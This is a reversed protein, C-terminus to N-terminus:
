FLAKISMICLNRLLVLMKLQNIVHIENKPNWAIIGDNQIAWLRMAVLNPSALNAVIIVHETLIIELQWQLLM